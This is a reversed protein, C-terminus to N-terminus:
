YDCPSFRHPKATLRQSRRIEPREIEVEEPAGEADNDVNNRENVDDNISDNMTDDTVPADRDSENENVNNKAAHKIIQNVHTKFIKGAYQILYMSSGQREKICGLQWKEKQNNYVRFQVSGGIKFEKSKIPNRLSMKNNYTYMRETVSPIILDLKTRLKRKYMLLAPSENTASHPAQRYYHMLFNALKTQLSGPDKAVKKLGSKVTQVCREAQGNSSPYYPVSTIHKIGNEKLFREFETSALSPGNDSVLVVPLGFRAFCDRLCEITTHSTIRKTPYVELWKSWCNM